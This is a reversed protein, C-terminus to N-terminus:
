RLTSASNGSITSNTIGSSGLNRIGGGGGAPDVIATNASITSNIVRLVGDNSIGGGSSTAVNGSVTSNTITMEGGRFGYFGPGVIYAGGGNTSSNGSITSHIVNVVSSDAYRGANYIGGGAPASNGSIVCHDITLTHANSLIGGGVESSNGNTITLGRITVGVPPNNYSGIVDFIRFAPTGTATSRQVTLQNAGPGDITINKTIELQGSTLTITQGNLAPDFQITDGDSAAFISDRLSGEGSDANTTVILTAAQLGQVSAVAAFLLTVIAVASIPFPLLFRGLVLSKERKNRGSSQFKKPSM